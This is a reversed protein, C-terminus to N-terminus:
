SSLSDVKETKLVGEGSLDRIPPLAVGRIITEGVAEMRAYLEKARSRGEEQLIDPYLHADFLAGYFAARSDSDLYLCNKSWWEQCDGIVLHLEASKHISQMLRRWLSFAEQHANLRREIAAMRLRNEYSFKELIKAYQSRIEETRRTLEAIDEKTALNEGKRKLYSGLYGGCASVVCLILFACVWMWRQESDHERIADEVMKKIALLNEM